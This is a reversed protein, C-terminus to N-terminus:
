GDIWRSGVVAADGGGDLGVVLDAAQPESGPVRAVQGLLDFPHEGVVVQVPAQGVGTGPDGLVVRDPVQRVPHQSV